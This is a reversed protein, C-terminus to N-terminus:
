KKLDNKDNIFFGRDGAKDSYDAVFVATHSGLSGDMFGKLAGTKLWKDTNKFTDNRKDWHNLPNIAYIRMSLENAEKFKKAIPYIGISDVDHVSTVGNSLLYTRAAKLAKEKQPITMSPIKALLYNMANDKLIGTPIGHADKVIEGGEIAPTHEDIGAIKLALSNALVM